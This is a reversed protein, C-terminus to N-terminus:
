QTACVIDSHAQALTVDSVGPISVRVGNVTIGRANGSGTFTQENIIVSGGGPLNVTQNVGTVAIQVGNIRLLAIMVGGECVPAGTTCTCQSSTSVLTGTITNGGVNLVFNEVAAQSRSQDGAGQTEATLLGTTLAGGLVNASLL